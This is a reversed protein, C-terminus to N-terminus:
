VVSKRDQPNGVFIYNSNNLNERLIILKTPKMFAISDCWLNQLHLAIDVSNHDSLAWYIFIPKDFAKPLTVFFEVTCRLCQLGTNWKAKLPFICQAQLRKILVCRHAAFTADDWSKSRLSSLIRPQLKKKLVSVMAWSVLINACSM